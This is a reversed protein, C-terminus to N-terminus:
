WRFWANLDRPQTKGDKPREEQWIRKMRLFLSFTEMCIMFFCGLSFTRKGGPFVFFTSCFLKM